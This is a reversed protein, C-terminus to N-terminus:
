CLGLWAESTNTAYLSMLFPSHTSNMSKRRMNCSIIPWEEGFYDVALSSCYCDHVIGESMFLWSSHGRVHCDHVTHGKVRVNMFYVGQCLYDCVIGGSVPLWSTCGRGSVPMFVGRISVTVFYVGLELLWLVIGGSVLPWSTCGRIGVTM